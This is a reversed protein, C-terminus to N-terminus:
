TLHEASGSVAHPAGCLARYKQLDAQASRYNREKIVGFGRIQAYAGVLAAASALTRESLTRLVLQVDDECEVIMRREIRRDSQRGFPDFPTGRLIKGHRLLRLLPSMVTGSLVIKNRRGTNRDVRTLWPPAMHFTKKGHGDFTSELSRAFAPDSHLRAVEYEDKYALVRYYSRAVAEALLGAEGAIRQEAGAVAAVMRGYREAYAANQYASLDRKREAVFRALEFPQAAQAEAASTRRLANPECALIRGWLFARRNLEVAAGNLEIARAIAMESLPIWGRQYAHGVLMMNTAIADGFLTMAAATCDFFEAQGAGVVSEIAAQHIERSIPLDGNAVFDATPAVASNVVARTGCKRLRALVDPSAAVVADCGIMVDASCAEIRATVIRERRDALQVHSVVAGNKQALGTFDLTAAGKGELHAAMALIAGVTVVGTGGVGTVLIRAHELLAGLAAPGAPPPLSARWQAEMQQIRRQNARKPQLGEITVFSPCFGKLCSMDKNCSSQNVARKRGLPTELPEIAICNSQVSCDGCGECVSPNIVVRRVPDALTGRKRRRRKEAACTQDYVIASVGRYARLRRQVDDLADRHAIEVSAPISKAGWYRQPHDSVLVVKGVGEAILQAVMRPVTLGGETPQGGTMAVADNFLIKYTVATGAAVAQRIALSGSHQYTGDGLNVFLHPLDSFSSLGVWQVGEGGMQCFTATNDGQGLAMIHCGIGAAAYSGDPLKTSSNHPCGACFFPKRTLVDPQLQASLPIVRPQRPLAAASGTNGPPLAHVGTYALFQRLAKQLQDPAFELTAPLLPADNPGRKGFVEPRQPAAVNFLTEQIQREVFSRKEEVVLLARMGSAFRRVGEGEIPWTMGIKYLGIGLEALRPEDLGLRALAALLDGHAKGVTVIGIRADRPRVITRDIPNARAFAQAAPLREELLRRELEARQGPWKVGTDYGFGREPIDIDGPLSFRAGRASGAGGILMSRGSEVTETIAKFAVWLGSFRSLAYGFLGFEVYEEVSAPFLVPMMAGEFVHDTQHPFMSSQAAHDDGAIALVGGHRSTGLVNANRFVDGTRDVGPGKGYWMSFVGEVRKGPFADIQQAGWLMTAGLDENLGPEFRIEYEALLSRQRWLEQDFGGLPSGRYGSVLGGTKLGAIRDARAQEVLIRVLAQTGTLFVSGAERRYRDELRYTDDIEQEVRARKNM